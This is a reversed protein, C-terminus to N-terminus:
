AIRSSSLFRTLVRRRVATAVELRLSYRGMPRGPVQQLSALGGPQVHYTEGTSEDLGNAAPVLIQRGAVPLTHGM